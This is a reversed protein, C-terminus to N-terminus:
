WDESPDTNTEQKTPQTVGLDALGSEICGSADKFFTSSDYDKRGEKGLGYTKEITGFSGDLNSENYVIRFKDIGTNLEKLQSDDILFMGIVMRISGTSKGCDVGGAGPLEIITGDDKKVMLKSDQNICKYDGNSKTYLHRAVLFKNGDNTALAFDIRGKEGNNNYSFVTVPVTTVKKGGTFDDVKKSTYNCDGGTRSDTLNDNKKLYYTYAIRHSEILSLNIHEEGIILKGGNELTFRSFTYGDRIFEEDLSLEGTLTGDEPLEITYTDGSIIITREGNYETSGGVADLDIVGQRNSIYEQAQLQLSFALLFIFSLLLLKKM